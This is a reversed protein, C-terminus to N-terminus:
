FIKRSVTLYVLESLAVQKDFIGTAKTSSRNLTAGTNVNLDGIKWSLNGTIAYLATDITAHRESYSAVM